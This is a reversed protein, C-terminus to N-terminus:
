RRRGFSRGSSRSGGSSGFRKGPSSGSSGSGFRHGSPDGRSYGPTPSASRGPSAASGTGSPRYGGSQVYRSGSYHKETFTGHTGYKPQSTVTDTGYFTRGSRSAVRYGNYENIYIPQYGHGWFLERMILYQPLFTWFSGGENHSWYGYQNSGQEPTAMYAFGPPQATNQAESDFHGADKHAIAMGLDREVNRYAPEPVDTWNEDSTVDSKAAAVNTFHTRVTRLKERYLRYPGDNTAELDVLIKDWSDYLQGSLATLAAADKPLNEAAQALAEDAEILTAVSGGGSAGKSNRYKTGVSEPVSRLAALRGDLDAKKAPWDRGAKEVSQTVGGLDVAKVAAYEREMNSVNGPVDRNFSVWHNAAAEVADADRMAAERLSREDSLLREARERQNTRKLERSDNDAEALKREDAKLRAPWESAVTTTRFLDPASALDGRVTESTRRLQQVATRLRDEESRIDSRLSGPLGGGCGALTLLAMAVWSRRM